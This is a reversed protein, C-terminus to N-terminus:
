CVKDNDSVKAQDQYLSLKAPFANALLPIQVGSRKSLFRRHELLAKRLDLLHRRIPLWQCVKPPWGNTVVAGPVFCAHLLKSQLGLRIPFDMSKPCTNKAGKGHNM